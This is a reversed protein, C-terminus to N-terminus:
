SVISSRRNLNLKAWRSCSICGNKTYENVNLLFNDVSDLDQPLAKALMKNLEERKQAVFELLEFLAEEREKEQQQQELLSFERECAREEVEKWRNEIVRVWHKMPQEAKPHCNAQIHRGADLCSDRKDRNNHLETKIDEVRSLAVAYDSTSVALKGEIEVLWDLIEHVKEDFDKALTKAGELATARKSAQEELLNWKESVRSCVARIHSNEDGDNSALKTAKSLVTDLGKRKSLRETERKKHEELLAKVTDIDGLVRSDGTLNKNLEEDIWSELELIAEDFASSDLLAQEAALRTQNTREQVANWRKKLNENREQIKKIEHRPARDMLSRGRKYTIDFDPQRSTLDTQVTKVRDVLQKLKDVNSTSLQADPIRNEIEELWTLIDTVGNIWVRSEDLAANLQKTREATRSSVKEFRHKLSVLGNKIPIADKKECYYQLRTGAAQQEAM